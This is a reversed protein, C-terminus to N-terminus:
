EGFHIIQCNKPMKHWNVGQNEIWNVVNKMSKLGKSGWKQLVKFGIPDMTKSCTLGTYRCNPSIGGGSQAQLGHPMTM